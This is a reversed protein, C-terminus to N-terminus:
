KAVVEVKGSEIECVPSSSGIGEREWGRLVALEAEQDPSTAAVEVKREWGAGGGSVQRSPLLSFRIISGIQESRPPLGRYISRFYPTM